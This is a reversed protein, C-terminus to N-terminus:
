LYLMIIRKKQINELVNGRLTSGCRDYGSDVSVNNRFENNLLVGADNKRFEEPITYHAHIIPM